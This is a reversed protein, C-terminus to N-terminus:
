GTLLHDIVDRATYPATSGRLELLARVTTTDQGLTVLAPELTGDRREQAHGAAALLADGRTLYKRFADLAAM